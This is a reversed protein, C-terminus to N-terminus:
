RGVAGQWTGAIKVQRKSGSVLELLLKGDPQTSGQGTFSEFGQGAQINRLRLKGPAIWDFAGSITKFETDPAFAVDEGEFAGEAHAAALVDASIGRSEAAGELALSGGKYEIGFLKGTVKYAPVSGALSISGQASLELGGREAEIVPIKIATGNWDLRIDRLRWVQDAATLRDVSIRTDLKRNRLWDPIAPNGLRFRALLGQRRRLSPMLLREVEIASAEPIELRIRDARLPEGRYEGSFKIDGARGRIRTMAFSRDNVLVSASAIRVPDALGDVELRADRVDLDGTWAGEEGAAKLYRLWGKWVGQSVAGLVPVRVAVGKQLEGASMGSTTVKVDLSSDELGYQATLEATQGGEAEVTSPGVHVNVGDILVDASQFKLVPTGPARLTADVAAMRGQLGGPRSFGVAGNLKGEVQMGEPLAAGMHRAAEVVADAPVERLDVSAAWHPESLIGSARFRMVLPTGPNEKAATELELQQSKLDLKGRYNLQWGGGKPMLNWRHVDDLKLQGTVALASMPGVIRARSSVVGHLGIGHGEILKALESIASRELEATVDLEAEANESRKWVGRALLMGFSQAAQDTRAPQGSFRVDTRNDDLPNIDLDSESLYFVSKTDGFKFNIRGARVQISPLLGPATKLLQFNWIGSDAKVLNLTPDNLKLNSFALKRTWLTRLTVRAELSDVYALPEIGISPDDAIEVNEITFGPGTFLNFRVKKVRVKRNLARELASEIRARYGEANVFPAAIGLVVIALAALGGLRALRKAKM